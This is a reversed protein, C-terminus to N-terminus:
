APKRRRWGYGRLGVLGTALLLWTSPEPLDTDRGEEVDSHVLYNVTGKANTVQYLTCDAGCVNAENLDVRNAAGVAPLSTDLSFFGPDSGMFAVGGVPDNTFHVIDSIKGAELLVLFGDEVTFPLITISLDSDTPNEFIDISIPNPNPVAGPAGPLALALKPSCLAFALVVAVTAVRREKM